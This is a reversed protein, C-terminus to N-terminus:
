NNLLGLVHVGTPDAKTKMREDGAAAGSIRIPTSRLCLRRNFPSGAVVGWKGADKRVELISHGHAAMEVEAQERTVDSGKPSGPWMLKPNTYEHNACLLGHDAGQSGRPLPLFALFDNNYGFQREQADASLRGADFPPSGAAVPDGWRVLIDARYGAAVRQREDLTSPVTEFGLSSRGPASGESPGACSAYAAVAGAALGKMAARRTIMMEGLSRTRSPNSRRDDTDNKM